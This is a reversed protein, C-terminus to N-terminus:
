DLTPFHCRIVHGKYNVPEPNLVCTRQARPCRPGLRCGIPLQYSSPISGPLTYLQSKHSISEDFDLVTKIMAQTYPHMPSNIVQNYSGSEVTQGCYIVSIYDSLNNISGFNNSLLLITTNHLQNLKYLLRFIQERAGVSISRFSFVQEPSDRGQSPRMGCRDLMQRPRNVRRTRWSTTGSLRRLHELACSANALSYLGGSLCPSDRRLLVIGVVQGSEHQQM